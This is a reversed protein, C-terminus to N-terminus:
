WLVYFFIKRWKTAIESVTYSMRWPLQCAGLYVCFGDGVGWLFQPCCTLPDPHPDTTPLIVGTATFDAVPVDRQMQARFWVFPQWIFDLFVAIFWTASKILTLYFNLCNEFYVYFFTPFSGGCFYWCSSYFVSRPLWFYCGCISYLCVNELHLFTLAQSPFHFQFIISFKKWNENFIMEDPMPNYNVKRENHFQTNEM